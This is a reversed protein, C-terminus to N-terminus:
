DFPIKQNKLKKEQSVGSQKCQPLRSEGKLVTRFVTAM